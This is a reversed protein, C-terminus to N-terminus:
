VELETALEAATLVRTGHRMLSLFHRRNNTVVTQAGSGRAVEAIHFDYVRGGAIGERGASQVFEARRGSPLDHISFRALIQSHLLPAM